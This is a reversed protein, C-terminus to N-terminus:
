FQSARNRKTHTTIVEMVHITIGAMIPTKYLSYDSIKLPEGKIDIELDIAQSDYPVVKPFSEQREISDSLISLLPRSIHKEGVSESFCKLYQAFGSGRDSIRIM